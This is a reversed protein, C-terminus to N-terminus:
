NLLVKVELKIAKIFLINNELHIHQFLDKIFEDLEKYTLQFTACADSPPNFHNTIETLKYVLDAAGTHEKEMKNIPNQVSGFGRTRPKEQFKNCHVLYKIVPFLIKEEKDMHSSLDSNLQYFIDTVENLEPYKNQHAEKTKNLHGEIRPYAERIFAHHTNIIHSILNDLEMKNFDPDSDKKKMLASQIEDLLMQEPLGKKQIMKGLKNKGECCYDICYKDFVVATQFNKIVIDKVQMNILNIGTPNPSTLNTM